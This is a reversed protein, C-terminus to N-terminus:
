WLTCSRLRILVTGFRRIGYFAPFQGALETVILKELSDRGSPAVQLGVLHVLYVAGNFVTFAHHHHGDLVMQCRQANQPM